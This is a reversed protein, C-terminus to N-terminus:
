HKLNKFEFMSKFSKWYLLIHIGMLGFFIYGNVSHIEEVECEAIDADMLLVVVLQVAVSFTLLVSSIRRLLNIWNISHNM